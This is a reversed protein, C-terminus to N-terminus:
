ERARDALGVQELLAMAQRRAPRASRGALLAALEVNEVATLEDMLQFSQFVFGDRRAAPPGARTRGDSGCPAGCAAGNWGFPPGAREAPAAADVKRKGCGSPGTIAVTERTM